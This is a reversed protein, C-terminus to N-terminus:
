RDRHSQLMERISRRTEADPSGDIVVYEVARGHRRGSELHSELCRRLADPRGRTPIGVVAIRPPSEPPGFRRLCRATLDSRSTLLGARALAALAERIAKGQGPPLNHERGLRAAHDELAAFTRCTQLLAVNQASLTHAAGTLPSYVLELGDGLPFRPLDPFARYLDSLTEM